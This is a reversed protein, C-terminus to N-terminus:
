EFFDDKTPKKKKVEEDKLDTIKQSDLPNKRDFILVARKNKQFTDTAKRKAEELKNFEFLDKYLSKDKIDQLAVVFRLGDDKWPEEM